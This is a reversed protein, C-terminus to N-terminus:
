IHDQVSKKKKELNCKTKAKKVLHVIQTLKSTVVYSGCVDSM